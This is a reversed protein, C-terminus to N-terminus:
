QVVVLRETVAAGTMLVQGVAAHSVPAPLSLQEKMTVLLFIWLSRDIM